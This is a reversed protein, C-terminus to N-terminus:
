FCFSLSRKVLASIRFNVFHRSVPHCTRGFSAFGFFALFITVVLISFLLFVPLGHLIHLSSTSPSDFIFPIFCPCTAALFRRCHRFIASSTLRCRVTASSSSLSPSISFLFFFFFFLPNCFTSFIEKQAASTTGFLLSTVIGASFRTLQLGLTSNQQRGTLAGYKWVIQKLICDDWSFWSCNPRGKM